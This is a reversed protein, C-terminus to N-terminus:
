AGRRRTVVPEAAAQGAANAPEPAQTAEATADPEQGHSPGNGAILLVAVLLVAVLVGPM